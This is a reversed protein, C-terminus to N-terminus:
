LGKLHPCERVDDPDHNDWEHEMAVNGGCGFSGLNLNNAWHEHRLHRCLLGNKVNHGLFDLCICCEHLRRLVKGFSWRNLHLRASTSVSSRWLNTSGSSMFLSVTVEVGQSRIRMMLASPAM